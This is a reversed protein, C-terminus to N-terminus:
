HVMGVHTEIRECRRRLSIYEVDLKQHLTVFHDIETVIRNELHHELDALDKKTAMESRLDGMESHVDDFREDMQSALLQVAEALDDVKSTVVKFDAQTPLAQVAQLVSQYDAQTPLAQVAQMVDQYDAQTPLAQVAQLVDQLTPQNKM